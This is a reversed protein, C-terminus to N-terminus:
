GKVRIGKKRCEIAFTEEIADAFESEFRSRPFKAAMKEQTKWYLKNLPGALRARYARNVKVGTTAVILGARVDASHVIARAIDKRVKDTPRKPQEALWLQKYLAAAPKMVKRGLRKALNRGVNLPLQRLVYDMRKVQEIFRPDSDANALLGFETAVAMKGVQRDFYAALNRQHISNM